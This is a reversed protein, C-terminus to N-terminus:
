KHYFRNMTTRNGSQASNYKETTECDCLRNGSYTFHLFIAYFFLGALLEWVNNKIFNLINNMSITTLHIIAKLGDKKNLIFM